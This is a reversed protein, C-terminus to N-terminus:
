YGFMKEFFAKADPKVKDPISSELGKTAAVFMCKIPNSQFPPGMLFLELLCVGLSWIDSNYTHPQRKIMEPPMWYPSGVMTDRPGQSLEACLGFDILKVTGTLTLMINQSKLDRHVFEKSHIFKLAKLVERGVYAVHDESFKHAVAADHLTGGEVYEMIIWVEKEELLNWSKLLQVINNNGACLSLFYIEALIINNSRANDTNLKKIAVLANNRTSDRASFVTAFGGQGKQNMKKYIKKLSKKTSLLEKAAIQRQEETAYPRRLIPKSKRPMEESLLFECINWVIEADKKMDKKPIKVKKLKKKIEPPINDWTKGDNDGSQQTKEEVKDEGIKGGIEEPVYNEETEAIVSPPITPMKLLHYKLYTQISRVKFFHYKKQQQYSKLTEIIEYQQTYSSFHIQSSTSPNSKTIEELLNLYISLEPVFPAKAKAILKRFNEFNQTSDLHPFLTKFSLYTGEEEKAFNEWLARMFRIPKDLLARSIQFCAAFNNLEFSRVALSIYRKFVRIQEKQDTPLLIESVITYKLTEAFALFRKLNPSQDPKVIWKRDFYEPPEIACFLKQQYLALQKGLGDLDFQVWNYDVDRETDRLVKKSAKLAKEEHEQRFKAFNSKILSTIETVIEQNTLTFITEKVFERLDNLNKAPEYFEKFNLTLWNKVFKGINEHLIELALEAKKKAKKDQSNEPHDEESDSLELDNDDGAGILVLPQAIFWYGKLLKLVDSISCFNHRAMIFVVVEEESLNGSLISKLIDDLNGSLLKKDESIHLAPNAPQPPTETNPQEENKSEQITPIPNSLMSIKSPPPMASMDPFRFSLSRDARNPVSVSSTATVKQSGQLARRGLVLNVPARNKRDIVFRTAPGDVPLPVIVQIDKGTPFDRNSPDVLRSKKMRTDLDDFPLNDFYNYVEQIKAFTYTPKKYAIFPMILEYQRKIKHLNIIDKRNENVSLYDPETTDIQVLDALLIGLSPVCPLTSSSITQLSDEEDTLPPLQTRYVSFNSIWDTEARIQYYLDWYQKQKEIKLWFSKLRWISPDYFVSFLDYALFNKMSLCGSIIEWFKKAIKLRDEKYKDKLIETAAWEKLNSIFAIMKNLHPCLPKTKYWKHHILETDPIARFISHAYISLQRAIEMPELDFFLETTVTSTTTRPTGPQITSLTKCQSHYFDLVTNGIVVLDQNALYTSKINSELITGLKNNELFDSFHLKLWMKLIKALKIRTHHLEESFEEVEFPLMEEKPKPYDMNFTVFLRELLVRPSLQNRFGFLFAKIDSVTTNKYTLRKVLADLTGGRLSAVSFSAAFVLGDNNVRDLMHKVGGGVVVVPSPPVFEAYAQRRGKKSFWMNHAEGHEGSDLM